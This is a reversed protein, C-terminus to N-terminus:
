DVNEPRQEGIQYAVDMMPNNITITDGNVRFIEIKAPKRGEGLGFTITNTQDSALGEGIVYADSYTNGNVTTLQVRSGLNIAHEWFRVKVYHNTGKNSILARLPGNLNTYILDPFGDQNFDSTLPTISYHKNEANAQEEVASFTGDNNQLLFRCPLKFLKNSPFAIYNEAVVLDQRGDLNFDEFLAGWAFEFDSVKAKKAVDTFNFGGQNEYLVWDTILAQDKSLDGKVLFEPVTSGTNSFFFDVLGDSNYDGAAIGMPYAFKGTLPTSVLEFKDGKENKYVRAEGTDYAVVLDLWGDNNVDILIGQFTNHTYSLGYQETVDTFVLDGDNRLLMSNAGYTKDNFITQGEMKELKIYNCLFIDADGDNDVDGLTLSLPTSKEDPEIALRMSTFRSGDNKLLYVGDKRTLILDVFGNNDIDFSVAGLTNSKKLQNLGVSASIDIFAGGQYKFLHDNQSFGGGAFVEDIGDNDIDIVASGTFPLTKEEDFEHEFSISVEKFTPIEEAPVNLDCSKVYPDVTDRYAFYYILAGAVIVLTFILSVVKRLM